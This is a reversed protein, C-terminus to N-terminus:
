QHRGRTRIPVLHAVRQKTLNDVGIQQRAFADPQMSSQRPREGLLGHQGVPRRRHRGGLQSGV